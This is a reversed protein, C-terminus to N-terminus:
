DTTSGDNTPEETSASSSDTKSDTLGHSVITKPSSDIKYFCRCHVFGMSYPPDLKAGHENLAVQLWYSIHCLEFSTSNIALPCADYDRCLELLVNLHPADTAIVRYSM